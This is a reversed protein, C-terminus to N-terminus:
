SRDAQPLKAADSKSLTTIILHRSKVYKLHSADIKVAGKGAVLADVTKVNSGSVDVDRVKGLTDGWVSKIPTSALTQKPDDVKSIPVASRIEAPTVPKSVDPKVEAGPKETVQAPKASTDVSVLNVNDHANAPPRPRALPEVSAIRSDKDSKAVDSAPLNHADASVTKNGNAGNGNASTQSKPASKSGYATTVMRDRHHPTYSVTRYTTMKPVWALHYDGWFNDWVWRRVWVVRRPSQRPVVRYELQQRNLRATSWYDDASAPAALGSSFVLATGGLLLCLRSSM